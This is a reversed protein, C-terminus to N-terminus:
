NKFRIWETGNGYHITLKDLTGTETSHYIVDFLPYLLRGIYANNVNFLQTTVASPNNRGQSIILSQEPLEKTEGGLANMTTGAIYYIKGKYPFCFLYNTTGFSTVGTESTFTAQEGTKLNYWEFKQSWSPSIGYYTDNYVCGYNNASYGSATSQKLRIEKGQENLLIGSEKTSPKYYGFWTHDYANSSSKGARPFLIIDGWVWQGSSSYYFNLKGEDYWADEEINYRYMGTVTSSTSGEVMYKPMYINGDFHIFSSNAAPTVPCPTLTTWTNTPINYKYLNQPQYDAKVASAGVLYVDDGVVCARKCYLIYGEPAEFITTEGTDLNMKYCQRYPSSTRGFVYMMNNYICPYTLSQSYPPQPVTKYNCWTNIVYPDEDMLIQQIPLTEDTQIWIGDKYEPEDPQIFINLLNKLDTAASVEEIPANSELRLNQKMEDVVTAVRNLKFDLNQEM